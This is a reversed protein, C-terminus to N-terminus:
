NSHLSRVVKNGRMYAVTQKYVIDVYISFPKIESENKFTTKVPYLIHNVTKEKLAELISHQARKPKM